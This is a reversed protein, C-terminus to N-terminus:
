EARPALLLAGVVVVSEGLACPVIEYRGRFQGFVKEDVYRRLPEFLIDGMLAVGGGIAVREPHVLTIVNALALGATQALRDIAELCQADDPTRGRGGPARLEGGTAEAFGTYRRARSSFPARECAGRLPGAPVCISSSPRRAPNVFRGTRCM